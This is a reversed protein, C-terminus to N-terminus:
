FIATTFFAPLADNWIALAVFWALVVNALHLALNIAHYGVAREGNGICIYNLMWSLTVLPRYVSSDATPYWYQQTFILGFNSASAHQVRPDQTVLAGSDGEFTGSFSNSYTILVATLLVLLVGARNVSTRMCSWTFSSKDEWNNM